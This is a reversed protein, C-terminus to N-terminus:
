RKYQWVRNARKIKPLAVPVEKGQTFVTITDGEAKLLKGTLNAGLTEIKEVLKLKVEEGVVREFDESLRLRRDLGPSSVELEYRGPIMEESDLVPGLLRSAEACNELSPTSDGGLPQIREIFIRVISKGAVHCDVDVARFGQPELYKQCLDLIRAESDSKAISVQAGSSM